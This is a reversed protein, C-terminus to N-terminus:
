IMPVVSLFRVLLYATMFQYVNRTFFPIFHMYIHHVYKPFAPPLIILIEHYPDEPTQHQIIPYTVRLKEFSSLEKM